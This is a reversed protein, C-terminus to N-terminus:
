RTAQGWVTLLNGSARFDPRQMEAVAQQYLADYEDPVRSWKRLFPLIMRFTLKMDEFFAPWAATGAHYTSVVARRQVNQFGHQQLLRELQSTMGARECTFSHGAQFFADLLLTFLHTLAPSNSEPEWEGESIRVIGGSRLVRRYEQLLKPWDWTRLYSVGARQNVLDFFADPFELMRLADMVQFEVRQDIGHATAQARASAVMYRSVDIGVALSLTPYTRATEILWGGTGSGVDIIRQLTTPDPQEPLVGGMARTMMQDQIQLRALDDASSRNAVFYTSPHEQNMTIPAKRPM